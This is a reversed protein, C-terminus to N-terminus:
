NQSPLGISSVPRRRQCRSRRRQKQTGRQRWTTTRTFLKARRTKRTVARNHEVKLVAGVLPLSVRVTASDPPLQFRAFVDSFAEIASGDVELQESVYEVNQMQADEGEKVDEVQVGNPEKM